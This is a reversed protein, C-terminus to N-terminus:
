LKPLHSQNRRAARSLDRRRRYTLALRGLRIAEATFNKTVQVDVATTLNRVARRFVIHKCTPRTACPLVDIIEANKLNAVLKLYGGLSSQFVDAGGPVGNHRAGAHELLIVGNPQLTRMWEHLAKEPDYAHDLANSYIFAARRSWEPRPDHFDHQVTFPFMTASHSIETGIVSGNRWGLAQTLWMQESGRRTGHCIGFPALGTANVWGKIWVALVELDARPVMSVRRIKNLNAGVQLAKYGEYSSDELTMCLPLLLMGVSVINKM